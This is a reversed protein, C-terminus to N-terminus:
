VRERCSARGIQFGISGALILPAAAAHDHGHLERAALLIFELALLTFLGSSLRAADHLPLLWSFLHATIAATWYYLPADPYAQGALQPTLWHGNTFIDYAIGISIADDHKWPDHGILGAFIYVVLLVALVWGSPPLSIGKFRPHEPLLPM